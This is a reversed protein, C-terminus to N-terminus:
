DVKMGYADKIFAKIGAMTMPYKNECNHGNEYDAIATGVNVVNGGYHTSSNHGYDSHTDTWIKGTDKNLYM